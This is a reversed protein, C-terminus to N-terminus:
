MSGSSLKPVFNEGQNSNWEKHRLKRTSGHSIINVIVEMFDSYSLIHNLLFYLGRLIWIENSNTKILIWNM